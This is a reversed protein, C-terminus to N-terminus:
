GEGGGGGGGRRQGAPPVTPPPGQNQQARAQAPLNMLAAPGRGLAETVRELAEEPVHGMQVLEFLAAIAVSRHEGEARDAVAALVAESVGAQVADAGLSLEAATPEGRRAIASHARLLAAERAEVAAAIRDMPVGKARGEAIKSQLLAVPVGAQAARQLAAEVREEPTQAQVAAPLLAALAVVTATILKKM